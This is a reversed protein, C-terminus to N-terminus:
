AYAELSTPLPGNLLVMEIEGTGRPLDKSNEHLSCGTIHHLQKTNEVKFIVLM